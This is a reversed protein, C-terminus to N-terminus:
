KRSHTGAAYLMILSSAGFIITTSLLGSQATITTTSQEAAINCVVSGVGLACENRSRNLGNRNEKPSESQPVNMYTYLLVSIIITLIFDSQTLNAFHKHKAGAAPRCDSFSGIDASDCLFYHRSSPM